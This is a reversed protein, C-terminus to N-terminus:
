PLGKMILEWGRAPDLYAPDDGNWYSGDGHCDLCVSDLNEAAIATATTLQTGSEVWKEYGTITDTTNETLVSSYWAWPYNGLDLGLASDRNEGADVPTGDYDVGYIEDKLMNAGLTRHPYSFGGDVCQGSLGSVGITHIWANPMYETEGETLLTSGFAHRARGSVDVGHCQDCSSAGVHCNRCNPGYNDDTGDDPDGPNGESGGPSLFMQRECSRPQADHSYAEVYTGSADNSSPDPYWVVARQTSAGAAGDHCDTCFESVSLLGTVGSPNFPPAYGRDADQDGGYAADAPGLPNWWDIALKNAGNDADDSVLTDPVEADAVWELHPDKILLFRGAPWVHLRFPGVGDGAYNVVINGEGRTTGWATGISLDAEAALDYLGDSPAGYAAEYAATLDSGGDGYPQIVRDTLEVARGPNAFTTLVRTSSAHPSHCDMCTFGAPETFAPRIDVPANGAYGLTHGTGFGRGPTVVAGTTYSNDMQINTKSGGGGAHCYDCVDFRGDGQWMLFPSSVAAHISHCDRCKNTTATYGGHPGRYSEIQDGGEADRVYLATNGPGYPLGYSYGSDNNGPGMPHASASQPAALVVLFAVACICAVVKKRAIDHCDILV